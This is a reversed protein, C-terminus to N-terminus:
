NGSPVPFPSNRWNSECSENDDHVWDTWIEKIIVEHIRHDKERIIVIVFYFYTVSISSEVKLLYWLSKGPPGTTLVRFKWHLPSLNLGQDPFQSGVHWTVRVFIFFIFPWKSEALFYVFLFAVVLTLTWQPSLPHIFLGGHLDAPLVRPVESTWKFKTM